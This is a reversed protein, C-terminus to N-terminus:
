AESAAPLELAFCDRHHFDPPGPPFALAWWSKAGARTEIVAALNLAWDRDGALDLDLTAHLEYSQGGARTEIRPPAIEAARMGQRYDDFRYAAWLSSPAFNLEAYDPGPGARVFAEFCSHEWLGDARASAAIPALSLAAINGSVLYRLALRHRDPRAM